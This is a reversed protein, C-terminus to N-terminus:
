ARTIRPALNLRPCRRAEHDIEHTYLLEDCLKDMVCGKGDAMGAV